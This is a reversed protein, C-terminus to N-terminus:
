SLMPSHPRWISRCSVGRLCLCFRRSWGCVSRLGSLRKWFAGSRRGHLMAQAKLARHTEEPLNRIVVSSM